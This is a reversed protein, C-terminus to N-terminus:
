RAYCLPLTTIFQKAGIFINGKKDFCLMTHYCKNKTMSITIMHQKKVQITIELEFTQVYHTYNIVKICYATDFFTKQPLIINSNM